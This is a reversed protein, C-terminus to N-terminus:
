NFPPARLQYDTKPFSFTQEFQFQVIKKILNKRICLILFSVILINLFLNNIQAIVFLQNATHTHQKQPEKSESKSFPHAHVIVQGNPLLHCHVNVINNYMVTLLVFLLLISAYKQIKRFVTM